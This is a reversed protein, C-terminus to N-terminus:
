TGLFQIKDIPTSGSSLKLKWFTAKISLSRALSRSISKGEFGEALITQVGSGKADFDTQTNIKDVPTSGSLLTHGWFMSKLLM